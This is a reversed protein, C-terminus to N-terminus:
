ADIVRWVQSVLKAQHIADDVANHHTGERKPLTLRLKEALMKMTRVSRSEWFQWPPEMGASRFASTLITLDFDPDNAWMNMKMRPDKKRMSVLWEDFKRLANPMTLAGDQNFAELRAEVSQKDWWALTNKCVHREYYKQDDLSFRVHFTDLPEGTEINFACAGLTLITANNATSLTEIDTM